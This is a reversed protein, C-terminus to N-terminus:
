LWISADLTKEARPQSQQHQEAPADRQEVMQAVADPMQPPVGPAAQLEAADIGPAPRHEGGGRHQGDEDPDDAQRLPAMSMAAGCIRGGIREGSPRAIPRPEALSPTSCQHICRSVAIANTGSVRHNTIATM